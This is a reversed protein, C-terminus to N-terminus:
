PKSTGKSMELFGQTTRYMRGWHHGEKGCNFCCGWQEVEDAMAIMAVYYGEDYVEGVHFESALSSDPKNQDPNLLQVNTHRVAFTQTKDYSPGKGGYHNM